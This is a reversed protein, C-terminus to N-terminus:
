LRVSVGLLDAAKEHKRAPALWDLVPRPRWNPFTERYEALRTVGPWTEDKPTGLKQFIKYLQDIESDGALM